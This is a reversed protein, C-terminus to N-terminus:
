AHPSREDLYEALLEGLFQRTNGFGLEAAHTDLDTRIVGWRQQYWALVEELSAGADGLTPNVIGRDELRRWKREVQEVVDGYSGELKLVTPLLRDIETGCRDEVQQSLSALEALTAAEARTTRTRRTWTDVAENTLLGRTRRFHEVAPALRTVAIGVRRAEALLLHLCLAKRVLERRDPAVLRVHNRVREATVAAEHGDGVPRAMTVELQEWFVTRELQFGPQHPRIGGRCERAVHNLLERADDRKQDPRTRRVWALLSELEGPSVGQKRAEACVATWTREAYYITKGIALLADRTAPTVVAEAVALELGRRINVMADSLVRWGSEAPGHAVAVDDDDEYAGSRYAEFIRGVGEMGFAALEAARLAGMSSSGFVRIGQSLAYLIEKHWVAPTTEFLGDIIAIAKPKSQCLTYVDGLAVPPLFTADLLASAEDVALTPGLFVYVASGASAARGPGAPPATGPQAEGTM